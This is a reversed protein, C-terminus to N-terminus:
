KKASSKRKYEGAMFAGYDLLGPFEPSLERALYILQAESANAELFGNDKFFRAVRSDPSIDISHHSRMPVKFERVLINAAMTAIKIGAGDFELFRRIVLASQPNGSWITSADGDYLECIRRTVNYFIRAMVTNFRHLKEESFIREFEEISLREFSEFGFGDIIQGVRYPISWAKGYSIQRDMVCGYVYLHPFKEIDNLLKEAEAIGTKFDVKCRPANLLARGQVLINEILAKQEPSAMTHHRM